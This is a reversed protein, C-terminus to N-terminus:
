NIWISNFVVNDPNIQGVFALLDVCIRIQLSCCVRQLSVCTATAGESYLLPLTVIGIGSVALCKTLQCALRPGLGPGGAEAEGKRFLYYHRSVHGSWGSRSRDYTFVCNWPGPVWIDLLFCVLYRLFRVTLVHIKM